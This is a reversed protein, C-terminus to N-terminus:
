SGKNQKELMKEYWQEFRGMKGELMEMTCTEIASFAEKSSITKAHFREVFYYLFLRLNLWPSLGDIRKELALNCMQFFVKSILVKEQISWEKVSPGLWQVLAIRGMQVASKQFVLLIGFGLSMACIMTELPSLSFTKQLFVGVLLMATSTTFWYSPFFSTASRLNPTMM